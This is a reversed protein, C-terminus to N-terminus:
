IHYNGRLGRVAMGGRHYDHYLIPSVPSVPPRADLVTARSAALTAARATRCSHRHRLRPGAVLTSAGGRGRGGAEAGGQGSGSGAEGFRVRGDVAGILLETRANRGSLVCTPLASRLRYLQFNILPSSQSFGTDRVIGTCSYVAVYQIRSYSVPVSPSGPALNIFRVLVCAFCTAAVLASFCLVFNGFHFRGM